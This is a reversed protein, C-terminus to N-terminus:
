EDDPVRTNGGKETGGGEEEGREGERSAMSSNWFPEDERGEHRQDTRGAQKKSRVHKRTKM